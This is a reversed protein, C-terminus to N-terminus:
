CWNDPNMESENFHKTVENGDSNIKNFKMASAKAPSNLVIEFTEIKKLLEMAEKKPNRQYVFKGDKDTKRYIEDIIGVVCNEVIRKILLLDDADQIPLTYRKRLIADVKVSEQAIFSNVRAATIYTDGSAGFKKNNYYGEIESATTYM